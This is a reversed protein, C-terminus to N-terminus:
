NLMYLRNNSREFRNNQNSTFIYNILLTEDCKIQSRDLLEKLKLIVKTKADELSVKTIKINNVFKEFFESNDKSKVFNSYKCLNTFYWYENSITLFENIKVLMTFKKEQFENSYFLERFDCNAFTNSISQFYKHLLKSFNSFCGEKKSKLYEFEFM